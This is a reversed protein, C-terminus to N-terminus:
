PPLQPALAALVGARGGSVNKESMLLAAELAQQLVQARQESPLQPALATLVQAKEGFTTKAPMVLAAELAQQLLPGSLRPALAVLVEAQEREPLALRLRQFRNLHSAGLVETQERENLSLAAALGFRQAQERQESNLRGTKL